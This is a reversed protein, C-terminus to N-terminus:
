KLPKKNVPLQLILTNKQNNQINHYKGEMLTIITEFNM